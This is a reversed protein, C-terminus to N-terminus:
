GGSWSRSMPREYTNTTDFGKAEQVGQPFDGIRVHRRVVREQEVPAIHLEINVLTVLM